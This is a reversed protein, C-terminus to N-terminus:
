GAGLKLLGEIVQLLISFYISLVTIRVVASTAVAKWAPIGTRFSVLLGSMIVELPIFLFGVYALQWIQLSNWALAGWLAGALRTHSPVKLGSLIGYFSLVTVCVSLGLFALKATVLSTDYFDFAFYSIVTGCAVFLFILTGEKWTISQDSYTNM